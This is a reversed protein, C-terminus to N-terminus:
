DEIYEELFRMFRILHKMEASTIVDEERAVKAYYKLYLM